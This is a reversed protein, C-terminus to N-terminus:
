VLGFGTDATSVAAKLDIKFKDFSTYHGPLHLTEFCTVAMPLSVSKVKVYLHQSLVAWGVWFKLLNCLENSTASLTLLFVCFLGETMRLM